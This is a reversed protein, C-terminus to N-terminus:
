RGRVKKTLTRERITEKQTGGEERAPRRGGGQLEGKGIDRYIRPEKKGADNYPREAQNGIVLM